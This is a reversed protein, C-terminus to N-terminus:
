AARQFLSRKGRNRRQIRASGHSGAGPWYCRSGHCFTEGLARRLQQRARLLRTKASPISVGLRAALEKNSLGEIQSMVFPIRYLEKMEALCRRVIAQFEERTYQEEPDDSSDVLEVPINEAEGLQEDLNLGRPLSRLRRQYMRCENIVIRTLWSSFQSEGRFGRLYRYANLLANQTTEEGDEANGHCLYLAVRKAKQEHRRVLEEFASSDGAQAQTVLEQDSIGQAGSDQAHNVTNTM